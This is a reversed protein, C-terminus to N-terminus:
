DEVCVYAEGRHGERKEDECEYGAPCDDDEYCDMLCVGRETEICYSYDPCDADDDCSLTCMGGPWDDGTLCTQECDEDDSCDGGVTPSEHNVEGTEGTSRDTTDDGGCGITLAVTAIAVVLLSLRRTHSFLRLM